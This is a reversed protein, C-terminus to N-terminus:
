TGAGHRFDTPSQDLRCALTLASHPHCPVLIPVCSVSNVQFSCNRLWNQWKDEKVAVRNVGVVQASALPYADPLIVRIAMTQEDVVYGVNIERSRMGVKVSMKEYEPDEKVSKESWEAVAQLSANVILPSIYKATWSELALSTQRSRIELYFSKVLGPLHTLALYYLHTLLWQVDREPSPAADATYAQIDFKSADVPKGRTHGLFDFAFGLLGALYMGDKLQEIYDSKVRFSSGEFHDFLLRWSFLYGQLQLPMAGEFSAEILSDLTPAELILSLLEDPLHATKNELAVDLSIQEQSAPIQRHLLDFAAQHVPRSPTYLLSYLEEADALNRYPLQGTYRALMDHTIMLPQHAADSVGNAAKLLRVLSDSIQDHNDKMADVLDDNPENDEALKRLTGYLRLSAHTLLVQGEVPTPRDPQFEVSTWFSIIYSLAQAWHEGYMDSMGPLLVSLVKCIEATVALTTGTSLAPILRKVLFILRQKAITGVAEEQTKLITNLFVLREMAQMEREASSMDLDTLDAVLENCFRTMTQTGSLPQQLGVISSATALANKDSRHTRVIGESAKAQEANYGHMEFLNANLNAFALAVYYSMASRSAQGDSLHRLSSYLCSYRSSTGNESSQEVNLTPVISSWHQRLVANAETVFELVQAELDAGGQPDWLANAGSISMNDEALLVTLFLHAILSSETSRDDELRTGLETETLLRSVYM